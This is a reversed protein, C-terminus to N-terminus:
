SAPVAELTIHVQLEDSVAPVFKGLGFDSRRLTTEAEFGGILTHGLPHLAYKNVKAALMVPRAIGHVTLIGHLNFTEKGTKELRTSVFTVEPFQAQDFFEKGKLRHDLATSGTRLGDLSLTVEVKSRTPDAEDVTVTGAVQEFRGVPHSYGMHSWSFVVATHGPDVTLARTEAFGPAAALLFALTLFPKSM